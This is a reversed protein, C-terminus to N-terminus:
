SSVVIRKHIDVYISTPSAVTAVQQISITPITTTLQGNNDIYLKTGVSQTWNWDSNVILGYKVVQGISGVTLPEVVIGDVVRSINTSSAFGIQGVDYYSVCQYAALNTAAQATVIQNELKLSAVTNAQVAFASETTLFVGLRRGVVKRVPNSENDFLISGPSSPVSTLGVVSGLYYPVLTAGSALRGVIIRIKEVFVGYANAVKTICNVTDFWHLDETPNSPATSSVRPLTTTYGFTREATQTDIDIYLYYDTGATFPGLWANTVTVKEEILYDTDVGNAISVVFPTPSAILSINTGNVTKQLYIPTAPVLGNTQYKVLGHKFPLKM